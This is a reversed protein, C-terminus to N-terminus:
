PFSFVAAIPGEERRRIRHVALQEQPLNISPRKRDRHLDRALRTVREPVDRGLLDAGTRDILYVQTGHRRAAEEVTRILARGNRHELNYIMRLMIRHPTGLADVRLSQPRPLQSEFYHTALLWSGLTIITVLWFAIFVKVFLRVQMAM